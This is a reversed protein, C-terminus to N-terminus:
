EESEGIAKIQHKSGEETITKVRDITSASVGVEDGIEKSSRLGPAYESDGDSDETEEDEEEEYDKQLEEDDDKKKGGWRKEAAAKGTETTYDVDKKRRAAIERAIKDFKLGIQAKQFEDLHRRHLNVAVVYRLEAMPKDTFDRTNYTVKIGLEKCARM